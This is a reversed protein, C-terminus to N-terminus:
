LIVGVSLRGSQSFTGAFEVLEEAATQVESQKLDLLAISACGRCLKELNLQQLIGISCGRGCLLAVFSM